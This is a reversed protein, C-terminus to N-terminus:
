SRFVDRLLSGLAQPIRQWLPPQLLSSIDLACEDPVPFRREPDSYMAILLTNARDSKRLLSEIEQESVVVTRGGGHIEYQRIDEM